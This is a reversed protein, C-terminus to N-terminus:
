SINRVLKYLFVIEQDLVQDSDTSSASTELYSMHSNFCYPDLVKSEVLDAIQPFHTIFLTSCGLQTVMYKLTAEAIACGDETSTGRGLEDIIVLSKSTVKQLITNTRILECLFTSRGSILDDEAGM